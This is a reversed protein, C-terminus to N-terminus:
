FEFFLPLYDINIKLLSIQGGLGGILVITATQVFRLSILATQPRIELGTFLIYSNKKTLLVVLYV